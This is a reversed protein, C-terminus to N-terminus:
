GKPGKVASPPAASVTPEQHMEIKGVDGSENMYNMIQEAIPLSLPPTCSPQPVATHLVTWCVIYLTKIMLVAGMSLWDLM